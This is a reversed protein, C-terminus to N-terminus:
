NQSIYGQYFTYQENGIYVAQNMDPHPVSFGSSHIGRIQPFTPNVYVWMVSGSQGKETDCEHAFSPETATCSGDTIGLCPCANLEVKKCYSEYMVDGEKDSPYGATHLNVETQSCSYGFGMWGVQYGIDSELTVVGYDNGVTKQTLWDAYVEASKGNVTGYPKYEGNQAPTFTFSEVYQNARATLICHASTMVTRPGILTGTCVGSGAGLSLQLRGITRYPYKTTDIVKTRNDWGVVSEIFLDPIPETGTSATSGGGDATNTFNMPLSPSETIVGGICAFYEIDSLNPDYCDSSQLLKKSHASRYQGHLTGKFAELQQYLPEEDDRYILLTRKNVYDFQIRYRLDSLEYAFLPLDELKDAVHLVKSVGYVYQLGIALVFCFVQLRVCRM